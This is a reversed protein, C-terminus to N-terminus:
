PKVCLVCLFFIQYTPKESLPPFVQSPITGYKTISKNQSSPVCMFQVPTLFAHVAPPPPLLFVIMCRNKRNRILSYLCMLALLSLSRSPSLYFRLPLVLSLPFLPLCLHLCYLYITQSFSINLSVVLRLFLSVVIHLVYTYTDVYVFVSLSFSLPLSLFLVPLSHSLSRALVLFLAFSLPLSLLSLRLGFFCFLCFCARLYFLCM